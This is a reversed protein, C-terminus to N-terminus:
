KTDLYENEIVDTEMAGFENLVEIIKHDNAPETQVFLISYGNNITDSLRNSQDQNFGLDKFADSLGGIAEGRFYKSVSLSDAIPGSLLLNGVGSLNAKYVTNLHAAVSGMLGGSTLNLDPQIEEDGTFRDETEPDGQDLGILSLNESSVDLNRLRIVANGIRKYDDFIGIIIHTM